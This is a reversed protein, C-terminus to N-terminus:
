RTRVRLGAVALTPLGTLAGQGQYDFRYVAAEANERATVNLVSLYGSLELGEFEHRYEADLDLQFFADLRTPDPGFVPDFRGHAADFVGDVVDPRPVGSAFRLRGGVRWANRAFGVVATLGHRQDQEFPRWPGAADRRESWALTYAAQATFGRRPPLRLTLQAGHARAEGADVLAAALAPSPEASRVTLGEARRIFGVGELELDGRWRLGALGHWAVPGDLATGGFVPSTDAALAAQRFRGGAARLALGDVLRLEASGRPDVAFDSRDYGTDIANASGPLRRDGRQLSPELRLGPSLDLRDFLRLDLRAFAGASLQDLTWADAAVGDGPAQGFVADDGERRPLGATGTRRLTHRAAEADLGVLLPGRRHWARLGGATTARRAETGVPGFVETAADRDLGLWATAGGTPQAHTLMFRHFGQETRARPTVGPETALGTRAVTETAGLVMLSTTGRGAEWAIRGAWDRFVTPPVLVQADPALAPLLQDLWGYRGAALLSLQPLPRGELLASADIADLQAEGRLDESPVVTEVELLGGTARGHEPGFGAPTLVLAGLLAPPLVSRLGGAHYLAPIPVGDVLIRTESGAAGWVVLESTGLPPRAVAPLSQAAVAPDGATGPVQRAENPDLATSGGAPAAVRRGKVVVSEPEPEPEAELAVEAPAADVVGGPAAWVGWVLAWGIV